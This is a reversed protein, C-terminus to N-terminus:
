VSVGRHGETALPSFYYNLFHAALCYFRTNQCDKCCTSYMNLFFFFSIHSRFFPLFFFCTSAAFLLTVCANAGLAVAARLTSVHTDCWIHAGLASFVCWHCQPTDTYVGSKLPAKLLHVADDLAAKYEVGLKLSHFTSFRTAFM